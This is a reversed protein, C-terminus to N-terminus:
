SRTLLDLASGEVPALGGAPLYFAPRADWYFGFLNQANRGAWLAAANAALFATYSGDVANLQGLNRVFIGKFQYAPAYTCPSTKCAETLIDSADVLPPNAAGGCGRNVVCTAITEAQRLDAAAAPQSKSLIASLQTLGGLIPGQNYTWYQIGQPRCAATGKSGPPTLHDYVLHNPGILGSAQFWGWERQAWMLDAHNGTLQYLSTALDLFVENAIADKTHTPRM